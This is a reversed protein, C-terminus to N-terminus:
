IIILFIIVLYICIQIYCEKKFEKIAVKSSSAIEIGKLYNIIFDPLVESIKLKKTSIRHLFYLDTLQIIIAILASIITFNEINHIDSFFEIISYGLLKIISLSVFTLSFLFKFGYPIKKNLNKLFLFLGLNNSTDSEIPSSLNYKLTVMDSLMLGTKNFLIISLPAGLFAFLLLNKNRRPHSVSACIEKILNEVTLDQPYPRNHVPKLLSNLMFGYSLGSMVMPLVHYTLETNHLLVNWKLDRLSSVIENLTLDGLNCWPKSSNSNVDALLKNLNESDYNNSLKEIV